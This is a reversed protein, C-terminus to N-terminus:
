LGYSGLRSATIGEIKHTKKKSKRRQARAGEDRKRNVNKKEEKVTCDGVEETVRESDKAEVSEPPPDESQVDNTRKSFNDDDHTENAINTSQAEGSDAYRNAKKRRRRRKSKDGVAQESVPAKADTRQDEQESVKRRRRRKSKDGVAQEGASDKTDTRQDEQESVKVHISFKEDPNTEDKSENMFGSGSKKTKRRKRKKATINGTGGPSDAGDDNHGSLEPKASSSHVSDKNEAVMQEELDRQMMERLLRRRKRGVVHEEGERYPAMKKLSVYQRLTSDRAFLIEKTSLGYNNPDVQRYKFRTPIGAVIDEYDLKYLEDEVKTKLKRELETEEAEPEANVDYGPDEEFDEEEMVDEEYGADHEDNIPFERDGEADDDDGYLVGEADDGAFMADKRLDEHLDKDSKWKTDQKRYYDEGFTEEMLKELQEPDYDGEMMKLIAAEDVADEGGDVEGLVNKIEQLKREMEQRKANKLRKLQEEKARREAEKREKRARRKQTRTDDKRRLTDMTLGRAYGVVSLDAGSSVGAAEAAEFRFNYRAEFDDNKDLQALSDDSENGDTTNEIQPKLPVEEDSDDNDDDDSSVIDGEGSQDIWSRNKFYDLLFKDGDKVDGHPDVTDSQEGRNKMGEEMKQMEALFEEDEGGRRDGKSSKKMVIIEDQNEDSDGATSQLFARRIERQEDDYALLSRKARDPMDEEPSDMEVEVNVDQEQNMDELIQQRVVDKYKMRKDKGGKRAQEVEDDDDDPHFFRTSPNYITQDKTRLANVTKMIDTDLQSTLLDGDEDESSEDDEDDDGERSGNSNVEANRLEQKQKRREFEKAFKKNISLKREQELRDSQESDSDDLLGHRDPM